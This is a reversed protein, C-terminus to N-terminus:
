QSRQQNFLFVAVATAVVLPVLFIVGGDVHDIEADSLPRFEASPFIEGSKITPQM